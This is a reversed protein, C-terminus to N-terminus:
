LTNEAEGFVQFGRLSDAHPVQLQANKREPLM